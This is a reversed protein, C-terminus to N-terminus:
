PIRITKYGKPIEFPMKLPLNLQTQKARLTLAGVNENGVLRLKVEEPFWQSGLKKYFDYTVSLISKGVRLTQEILRMNTDYVFRMEIGKRRNTLIYTDKTYTLAARKLMRTDVAKASLINEITSYSVSVGLLEGLKQYDIQASQQNIKEYFQLQKPTIFIRALPVIVAGNLWIGEGQKLRSTISIKQRKGGRELQAQGRWQLSEFALAKESILQKVIRPRLTEDVVNESAVPPLTKCGVMLILCVSLLQLKQM